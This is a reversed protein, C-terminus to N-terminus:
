LMYSFFINTIDNTHDNINYNDDTHSLPKILSIVM